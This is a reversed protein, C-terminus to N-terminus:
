DLLLIFKLYLIYMQQYILKQEKILGYSLVLLTTWNEKEM